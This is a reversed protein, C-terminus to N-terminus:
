PKQRLRAEVQAFVEHAPLVEGRDLQALGEAILPRAWAFDEDESRLADIAEAIAEELSAYRGVAVQLRLWEEHDKTVQIQM